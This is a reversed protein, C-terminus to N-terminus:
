KFVNEKFKGMMNGPPNYNMCIYIKNNIIGIGIGYEISSSWILQTFHGTQSSFTGNEFNYYKIENYWSDIAKKIYNLVESKNIGKSSMSMYLNEGYLRNQSHKFQETKALEEAHKNSFNTIVQNHKILKSKHKTRYININNQFIV